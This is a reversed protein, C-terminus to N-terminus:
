ADGMNWTIVGESHQRELVKIFSSLKKFFTEKRELHLIAM